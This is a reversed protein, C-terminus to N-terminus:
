AANEKLEGDIFTKEELVLPICKRGKNLRKWTKQVELALKFVMTLVATRSGSGKTRKTRLRVTAFTSEIPNTTRIHMWQEAPFDNTLIGKLYLALILNDISPIRRAGESAIQELVSWGNVDQGFQAKHTILM